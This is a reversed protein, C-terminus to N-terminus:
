VTSGPPRREVFLNGHDILGQKIMLRLHFTQLDLYQLFFRSGNRFVTFDVEVWQGHYQFGLRVQLAGLLYQIEMMM